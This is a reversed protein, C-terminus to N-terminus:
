CKVFTLAYVAWLLEWLYSISDDESWVHAFLACYMKNNALVHFSYTSISAPFELFSLKLTCTNLSPIAALRTVSLLHNLIKSASNKLSLCNILFVLFSLFFYGLQLSLETLQLSRPCIKKKQHKSKMKWMKWHISKFQIPKRGRESRTRSFM